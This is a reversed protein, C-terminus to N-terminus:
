KIVMNKVQNFLDFRIQMPQGPCHLLFDGVKWDGSYGLADMNSTANARTKYIEYHYANLYRQPVIKVIDKFQEQIDWMVDQEYGRRNAYQPYMDLITQLWKKADPTNHVIISDANIGNFDTAIVVSYGPYIFEELPIFFNTIMTDTGSWHLIDYKGENLINLLMDIKEFGLQPHQYKFNDTKVVTDYGRAKAYLERNNIWTLEALPLYDNAHITVLACRM